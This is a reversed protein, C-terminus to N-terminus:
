CVQTTEKVSRVGGQVGGHGEHTARYVNHASKRLSSDLAHHDLVAKTGDSLIAVVGLLEWTEPAYFKLIYTGEPHPPRCTGWPTNDPVTYIPIRRHTPM